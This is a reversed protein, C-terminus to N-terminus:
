RSECKEMRLSVTFGKHNFIIHDLLSGLTEGASKLQKTLETDEKHGKPGSGLLIAMLENDSLAEAGKKSFNKAPVIQNQSIEQNRM